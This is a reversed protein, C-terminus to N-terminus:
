ILDKLSWNVGQGPLNPFRLARYYGLDHEPRTYGAPIPQKSFTQFYLVCADRWRVAEEYQIAMLQKVEIFREYDVYPELSAWVQQMHKVSDAGMYYHHVM